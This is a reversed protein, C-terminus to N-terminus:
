GSAHSVLSAEPAPAAATSFLHEAAALDERTNINFFPDFPEIPWQAIALRHRAAWHRTSREGEVLLAHRLKERLAVPWLGFVPHLGGGSEALALEAGDRARAEELRMALDAPLFPCDCAFSM